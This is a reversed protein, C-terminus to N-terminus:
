IAQIKFKKNKMGTIPYFRKRSEVMSQSDDCSIGLKWLSGIWFGFDLISHRDEILM